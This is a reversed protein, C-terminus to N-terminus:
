PIWAGRRRGNKPRKVKRGPHFAGGGSIGCTARSGSRNTRRPPKTSPPCRPTVTGPPSPPARACRLNPPSECEEKVFTLMELVPDSMSDIMAVRISKRYFNKTELFFRRREMRETGFAKVVRIGQFTEQLIKYISSM